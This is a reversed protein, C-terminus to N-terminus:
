LSTILEKLVALIVEPNTLNDLINILEDKSKSLLEEIAEINNL